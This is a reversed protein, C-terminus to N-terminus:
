SSEFSFGGADFFLFLFLFALCLGAEKNPDEKNPCPNLGQGLKKNEAV